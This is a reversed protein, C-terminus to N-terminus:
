EVGDKWVVSYMPTSEEGLGSVLSQPADPPLNSIYEFELAENIKETAIYQFIDQAADAFTTFRCRDTREDDPPEDRSGPFYVIHGTIYPEDEPVYTIYESYEIILTDKENEGDEIEFYLNPIGIATALANLLTLNANTFHNSNMNCEKDRIEFVKRKLQSTLKAAESKNM